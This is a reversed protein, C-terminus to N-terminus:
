LSSTAKNAISAVLVAGWVSVQLAFMTPPLFFILDVPAFLNVFALAAAPGGPPLLSVFSPTIGAATAMGWVAVALAAVVASYIAVKVLAAASTTSVGVGFPTACVATQGRAEAQSQLLTQGEKLWRFVQRAAFFSLIAAAAARCWAFQSGYKERAVNVPNFDYTTGMLELEWTDTDDPIASMTASVPNLGTAQNSTYGSAISNAATRTTEVGNAAKAQAEAEANESPRNKLTEQRIEELKSNTATMDTSDGTGGTGGGTGLKSNISNLTNNATDLRSNIGDTGFTSNKVQASSNAADAAQKAAAAAAAAAQAQAQATAAAAATGTGAEAAAAAAAAQEAKTKADAAAAAAAQNATQADNTAGAAVDEPGVAYMSKNGLTNKPAKMASDIEGDTHGILGSYDDTRDSGMRYYWGGYPSDPTYALVCLYSKVRIYTGGGQLAVKKLGGGADSLTCDTEIVYYLVGQAEYQANIFHMQVPTTLEVDKRIQYFPKFGALGESPAIFRSAHSVLPVALGIFCILGKILQM